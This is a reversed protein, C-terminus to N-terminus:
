KLTLVHVSLRLIPCWIICAPPQSTQLAHNVAPTQSISDSPVVFMIITKEQDGLLPLIVVPLCLRPYPTTMCSARFPPSSISVIYDTVSQIGRRTLLRPEAPLIQSNQNCHHVHPLEPVPLSVNCYMYIYLLIPMHSGRPHRYMHSTSRWYPRLSIDVIALGARLHIVM